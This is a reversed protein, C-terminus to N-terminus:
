RLPSGALEMFAHAASKDQARELICCYYGRNSVVKRECALRLRGAALLDDTLHSWALAVGDGNLAAQLYVMFSTFRKSRPPPPAQLGTGSLYRDWDGSHNADSLYLLRELVLKEISLWRDPPLYSPSCVAILEEHFIRRWHVGPLENESFLIVVDCLRPDFARNQDRTVLELEFEPHSAGFDALRSMLFCSAFGISTNVVLTQQQHRERIVAVAGRIQELGASIAAYFAEGDATLTLNPKSRVFLRVGLDSELAAMQRSVAPQLVNLEGAARTFSLHRAAAEFTLLLNLSPLDSM